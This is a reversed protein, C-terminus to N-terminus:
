SGFKYALGARVENVSLDSAGFPGVLVGRFNYNLYEARVSWNNAWPAWELGGGIVWGTKAQNANGLTAGSNDIEISAAGGTFYLLVTSIPTYGIRGRVSALWNVGSLDTWSSDLEVGLLWQPAFQWNYGAYLGGIVGSASGTGFGNLQINSWAGGVDAGIYAGTWYFPQARLPARDYPTMDAAMAPMILAGVAFGALSLKRMGSEKKTPVSLTDLPRRGITIRYGCQLFFSRWIKTVPPILRCRSSNRDLSRSWPFGLRVPLSPDRHVPAEDPFNIFAGGHFIVIKVPDFV